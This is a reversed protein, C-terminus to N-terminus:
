GMKLLFDLPNDSEGFNLLLKSLQYDDMQLLEAFRQQERADARPYGNELYRLLLLDLEKSGRRCRWRLKAESEM